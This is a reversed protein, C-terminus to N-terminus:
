RLGARRRSWWEVGLALAFPMIWWASRMPHWTVDRVPPALVRSIAEDLGSLRSEPVIQGGRSTTWAALLDRDIATAQTAGTAVVLSASADYGRGRIQIPYTGATDPGRITATFHGPRADPWLLGLTAVLPETVDGAAPALDRVIVTLTTREGPAVIAPSLSVDIMPPTAMAADAVLSRWFRDFAMADADRFRWADRAGSVVIRGPGVPTRWVIPRADDVALAQSGAPLEAPWALESAFLPSPGIPASGQSERVTPGGSRISRPADHEATQWRAVETLRASPRADPAQDMLLVVAGGRTRLFAELGDVDRASIADPAGIVVAEFLSLTALDLAGPPPAGRDVSADRSTVVRSTVVFRPDAELARRVFTSMWSPRGDFFLVARRDSRVDTVLDATARAPTGDITAVIALATTGTAAPTLTLEIRRTEDDSAIEQTVEDLAVDTRLIVSLRRGMAHRSRVEVTVTARAHLHLRDTAAVHEISVWPGAPEPVVAFAISEFPALSSPLRDGVTVMAAAGAFPGRIVTFSTALQRAVGDALTADGAASGAVIAVDPKVRSSSTIAPDVAGAVAIAIAVIRWLRALKGASAAVSPLSQRLTPEGVSAAVSPLSQRLDTM